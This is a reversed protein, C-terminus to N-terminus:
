IAMIRIGANRAQWFAVDPMVKRQRAVELIQDSRLERGDGSQLELDRRPILIEAAFQRSAQQDRTVANTVLRRSKDESVWALYAARGAAFRRQLEKDQLLALKAETQNRDIAGTLPPAGNTARVQVTVSTDIGLAEFFKDAGSPDKSSINLAERVNRVAQLGRRWSPAVYNEPPLRVGLLPSLRLGSSRELASRLDEAFPVAHIVQAETSAL